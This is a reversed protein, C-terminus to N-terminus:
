KRSRTRCLHLQDPPPLNGAPHVSAEFGLRRAPPRRNGTRSCKLRWSREATASSQGDPSPPQPNGSNDFGILGNCYPCAFAAGSHARFLLKYAPEKQRNAPLCELLADIIFGRCYICVISWYPMTTPPRTVGEPSSQLPKDSVSGSGYRAPYSLDLLPFRTNVWLQRTKVLAFSAGGSTPTVTWCSRPRTGQGPRAQGRRDSPSQIREGGAAGSGERIGPPPGEQGIHEGAQDPGAVAVQGGDGAGGAAPRPATWGAPFRSLRYRPLSCSMLGAASSSSAWDAAQTVSSVRLTALV